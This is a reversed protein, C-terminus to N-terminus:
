QRYILNRCRQESVSSCLTKSPENLPRYHTNASRISIENVEHWLIYSGCFRNRVHSEVSIPGTLMTVDDPISNTFAASLIWMWFVNFQSQSFGTSKESSHVHSADKNPNSQVRWHLASNNFGRRRLGQTLTQKSWGSDPLNYKPWFHRGSTPQKKNSDNGHWDQRPRLDTLKNRNYILKCHSIFVPSNANSSFLSAIWIQRSEAQKVMTKM